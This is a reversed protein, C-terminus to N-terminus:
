DANNEALFDEQARGIVFARIAESEELSIRFPPMGYNRRSGAIVVSHWELHGQETMYRLDPITGTLAGRVEPGHCFSCEKERYLTEGLEIAEASANSLPPEPLIREPHVVNALSEDADLRFALLRSPGLASEEFFFEPQAFRPHGGGGVPILVYQAGDMEYTVPAASVASGTEFSWLLEGRDASFAEFNGAATGQFVLNGATTMTGGNFARERPVAWRRSQTVPDWAVLDGQIFSEGDDTHPIAVGVGSSATGDGHFTQVVPLNNVPIYALHHLPSYSMPIWSHAGWGDNPYLHFEGTAGDWFNAEPNIVPRGTTMDIRSAWTTRAFNSASILTGDSRNIVYFFGNKPAIMLAPISEGNAPLDALIINANMDYGWNGEPVAQYHWRYEGSAGQVAVVSMTFLSDGGNSNRERHSFPLAAATGFYLLDLEPDYTLDDWANGGGGFQQWGDGTWTRAAMQMAPSTNEEPLHSPVTYFRWLREGTDAEYADVHGRTRLGSESLGNGVFVMDRGVQPAGTMSYGRTVDCTVREWVPEGTDADLAVLRCDAVTAFVKGRWVAVGRNTRASMSVILGFVDDVTFRVEPDYQWVLQGTKADFVHVVSFPGTLYIRGDAVIPTAVLGDPADIDAYWDLGLRRINDDNIQQLPSYREASYTRGNLLWDRGEDPARLARQHDVYPAAPQASAASAYWQASVLLPLVGLITEVPLGAVLWRGCASRM